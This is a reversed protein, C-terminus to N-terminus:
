TYKIHKNLLATTFPKMQHRKQLTIQSLDSFLQCHHGQFCLEPKSRAVMLLTEKTCYYTFKIIIDRPPGEQRKPGLARHIRDFELRDIPIAPVLEQFLVTTTSTLDTVIEPIGRLCLNGRGARNEFDEFQLLNSVLEKKLDALDQEHNEIVTIAADMKDELDNTPSGLERIEKTLHTSLKTTAASLETRLMSKFHGLLEADRLPPPQPPVSGEAQSHDDSFLDAEGSLLPPLRELSLAPAEPSDVPPSAGDEPGQSMTNTARTAGNKRGM